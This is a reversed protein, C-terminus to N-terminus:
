FYYSAGLVWADPRRAGAYATGAERSGTVWALQLACCDVGYRVGLRLDFRSRRAGPPPTGRLTLLGGLHGFLHLSRTLPYGANLEGYATQLGLGFYDPAFYLRANWREAIRGAFAEAYSYRGPGSYRVVTAGIEWGSAQVTRRAYGAYGILEAQQRGPEIEANGLSGGAFWGAAHDYALDLRLAPKEDSLSRGRFRKDSELTLGAGVQASAPAAIGILLALLAARVCQGDIAVALRPVGRWVAVAAAAAM